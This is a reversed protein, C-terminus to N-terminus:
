WPRAQWKTVAEPTCDIVATVAQLTIKPVPASVKCGKSPGVSALGLVGHVDASWYVCMQGETLVATKDTGEKALYGAFVGRHETTVVVFRKTATTPM